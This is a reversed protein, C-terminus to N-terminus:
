GKKGETKQNSYQNNHILILYIILLFAWVCILGIMVSFRNKAAWTLLSSEVLRVPNESWVYINVNVDKDTNMVLQITAGPQLKPLFYNAYEGNICEPQQSGEKQTPDKLETPPPVIMKTGELCIAGSDSEPRLKFILKSFAKEFSINTITITHKTEHTTAKKCQKYEIIPSKTM